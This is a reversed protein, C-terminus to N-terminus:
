SVKHEELWPVLYTVFSTPCTLPRGNLVAALHGAGFTDEWVRARRYTGADVAQRLNDWGHWAMLAADYAPDFLQAFDWDLVGIVEGDDGWHINGAGLDGHVLTYPVAELAMAAEIRRRGDERWREPLRPLVEQILVDSWRRPDADHQRTELAQRLETTIPLERLASLVNAMRAPDGTGEPHGSGPIWSHAM